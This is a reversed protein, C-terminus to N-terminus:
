KVGVTFLNTLEDIDYQEVQVPEVIAPKPVPYTFIREGAMARTGCYTDTKLAIIHWVKGDTDANVMAAQQAENYDLFFQKPMFQNRIRTGGIGADGAFGVVYVTAPNMPPEPLAKGQDTFAKMYQTWQANLEPDTIEGQPYTKLFEHERDYTLKEGGNVTHIGQVQGYFPRHTHAHWLAVNRDQTITTPVEWGRGETQDYNTHIIYWM